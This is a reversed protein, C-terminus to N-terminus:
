GRGGEGGIADLGRRHRQPRKQSAHELVRIPRSRDLRDREDAPADRMGHLFMDRKFAPYGAFLEDGGDGSLSVTVHRRAMRSVMWVAWASSDGFPEDYLTPMTDLAADLDVSAAVEETHDTALHEAVRRAAAAESRHRVDQGLTFTRPRDLFCAVSASDIGGSLAAGVPVDSRLHLDVSDTFLERLQSAAQDFRAHAEYLQEVPTPVEVARIGAFIDSVAQRLFTGRHVFRHGGQDLVQFAAAQQVFRQDHPTPFESAAGIVSDAPSGRIAPIVIGLGHRDPQVLQSDPHRDAQHQGEGPGHRCRM